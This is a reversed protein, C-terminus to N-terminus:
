AGTSQASFFVRNFHIKSSRCGLRLGFRNRIASGSAVFRSFGMFIHSSSKFRNCFSLRPVGFCFIPLSPSQNVDGTGNVNVTVQTIWRTPCQSAPPIAPAQWPTRADTDSAPGRVAECPGTAPSGQTELGHHHYSKPSAPGCTPVGCPSMGSMM